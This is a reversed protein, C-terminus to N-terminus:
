GHANDILLIVTIHSVHKLMVDHIPKVRVCIVTLAVRAANKFAHRVKILPHVNDADKLPLPIDRQKHIALQTRLTGDSAWPLSFISVLTWKIDSSPGGPFPPLADQVFDPDVIAANSSSSIWCFKSAGPPNACATSRAPLSAIVQPLIFSELYCM